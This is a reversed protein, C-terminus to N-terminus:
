KIKGYHPGAGSQGQLTLLQSVTIFQYGESELSELLEPLAKATSPHIDHLLIISGSVVEEKVKKNVENANRSQWDLSDVSWLVLPTKNEKIYDKVDQNYAGYPPRFVSPTQGSAMKILENSAEIEKIIEEKNLNTLDMHSTTHNGIEHGQQAVEQAVSPYYGAQNGLMFFTAKADFKDLTSLIAPTVKPHPGDDFTLAVVKKDADLDVIDPTFEEPLEDEAKEKLGELIEENLYPAMKEIPIEINVPGAAGAAIEYEDFYLTFGDKNISWKWKGTDKLTENLIDEFVYMAINSDAMIEKKVLSAIKRETNDKVVHRLTLVKETELNITFPQIETKGNAGGTYQYSELNFSYINDNVKSTDIHINLHARKDKSLYAENMKVDKMFENQKKQIWANIQSNLADSKTYPTAISSTFLEGEKTKTELNLGPFDSLEKEEVKVVAKSDNEVWKGKAFLSFSAILLFLIISIGLVRRNM